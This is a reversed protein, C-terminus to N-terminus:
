TVASDGRWSRSNGIHASVAKLYMTINYFTTCYALVLGTSFAWGLYHMNAVVLVLLTSQLICFTWMYEDVSFGVVMLCILCHIALSAYKYVVARPLPSTSEIAAVYFIMQGLICTCSNLSTARVNSGKVARAYLVGEIASVQGMPVALVSRMQLSSSESVVTAPAAIYVHGDGAQPTPDVNDNLGSGLGVGQDLHDEM